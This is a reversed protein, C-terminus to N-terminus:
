FEFSHIHPYKWKECCSIFDEILDLFRNRFISNNEIANKMKKGLILAEEKAHNEDKLTDIELLDDEELGVFPIMMMGKCFGYPNKSFFEDELENLSFSIDVGSKTLILSYEEYYEKLIHNLNSKRIGSELSSFVLHNIDLALSGIRCVQLDILM